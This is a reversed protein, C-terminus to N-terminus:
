PLAVLAMAAMWLGIGIMLTWGAVGAYRRLLATRSRRVEPLPTFPPHVVCGRIGFSCRVAPQSVSGGPSHRRLARGREKAEAVRRDNATM